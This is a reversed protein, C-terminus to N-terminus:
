NSKAVEWNEKDLETTCHTNTGGETWILVSMTEDKGVIHHQVVYGDLFTENPRVEHRDNCAYYSSSRIRDGRKGTQLGPIGNTEEYVTNMGPIRSGANCEFWYTVGSECTAIYANPVFAESELSPKVYARKKEM